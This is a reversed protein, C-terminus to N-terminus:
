RQDRDVAPGARGGQLARRAHLRPGQRRAAGRGAGGHPVGVEVAGRRPSTPNNTGKAKEDRSPFPSCSKSDVFLLMEDLQSRNM